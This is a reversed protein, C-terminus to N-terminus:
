DLLDKQVAIKFAKIAKAKDCPGELTEVSLVTLGKTKLRFTGWGKRTRCLSYSEVEPLDEFSDALVEKLEAITKIQPKLAGDDSFVFANRDVKAAM